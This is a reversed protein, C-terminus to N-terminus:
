SKHMSHKLTRVKDHAEQVGIYQREVVAKLDSPLDKALAKQYTDVAIDEGREAEDVVSKTDKGTVAAKINLWGRHIAGAASGSTEPMKGLKSVHSQLERAYEARQQAYKLFLESIQPDTMGEAGDRYGQEGDKCTEILDNLTGIFEDTSTAM